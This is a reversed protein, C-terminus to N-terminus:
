PQNSINTEETFEEEKKKKGDRLVNDYIPNIYYRGEDANLTPIRKRIEIAERIGRTFWNTNHTIAKITVEGKEHDCQAMHKSVETTLTNALFKPFSGKNRM